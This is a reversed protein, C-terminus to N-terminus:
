YINRWSFHEIVNMGCFIISGVWSLLQWNNDDTHYTSNLLFELQVKRRAIVHMEPIIAHAFLSPIQVQMCSVM